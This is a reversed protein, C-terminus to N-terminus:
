AAEERLLAERLARYEDKLRALQERLRDREAMGDRIVTLAVSLMEGYGVVDCERDLLDGALDEIVLAESM